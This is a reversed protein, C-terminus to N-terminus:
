SRPQCCSAQPGPRGSARSSAPDPPPSPPPAAGDVAVRAVALRVVPDWFGRGFACVVEPAADPLVEPASPYGKFDLVDDLVDFSAFDRSLRYLRLEHAVGLVLPHNVFVYLDGGARTVAPQAAWDGGADVLTKPGFGAGDWRRYWLQQFQDKYVVHVGGAGDAVANMAAGHYIPDGDPFAIAPAGWAGLPDGDDRVRVQAPDDWSYDGWLFLLKGGAALLRGGGLEPATALEGQAAFTAGGDTSVWQLATDGCFACPDRLWAQIWIRGRGDVALEPRHYAQGPPPRAVTVLPGPAFDDAGDWRWWQFAVTRDPDAGDPPFETETTDYGYVAAVDTGLVALDATLHLPGPLIVRRFSWSAGEDDSRWWGLGGPADPTGGFENQAAVLHVPAHGPPAVRVVHRQAVTSLADPGGILGIAPATVAGAPRAALACWAVALARAARGM